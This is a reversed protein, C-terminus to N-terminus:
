YNRAWIQTSANLRCVILVTLTLQIGSRKVADPDQSQLAIFM